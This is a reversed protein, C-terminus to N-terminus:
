AETMVAPTSRYIRVPHITKDSVHRNTGMRLLPGWSQCCSCESFFPYKKVAYMDAKEGIEQTARKRFRSRFTETVTASHKPGRFFGMIERIQIPMIIGNIIQVYRDAGAAEPHNARSFSVFWVGQAAHIRGTNTGTYTNKQTPRSSKRYLDVDFCRYFYGVLKAVSASSLLRECFM